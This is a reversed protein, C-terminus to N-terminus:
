KLAAGFAATPKPCTVAPTLEKGDEVIKFKPEVGNKRLFEPALKGDVKTEVNIVGEDVAADFLGLEKMIDVFGEVIYWSSWKKAVSFAGIKIKKIKRYDAKVADDRLGRKADDLAANMAERADDVQMLAAQHEDQFYGFLTKFTRSKEEYDAIKNKTLDSVYETNQDKSM